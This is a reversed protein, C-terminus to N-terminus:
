FSYSVGLSPLIPLQDVRRYRVRDFYFINDRDLANTVGADVQVTQREDLKWTKTLGLDVRAYDPLRGDNLRAYITTLDGNSSWYDTGIQGYFPDGEYFGQTQTFPFGSGFNFRASAKWSDFRGFTYSALLNVNHRRDWIPAYEIRGDDRTVFSLSYVAWFYAGGKEYKLALDAGYANGTEVIFDKRLEEPKDAFQPSDDYIKNRNLNTVQRFDKFWGEVNVTIDPAPDFEVGGLLHNARQLADKLERTTGDSSTINEPVDTPSSLFGYFLNVVDRDNNAAVLNQSYRGAALKFRATM